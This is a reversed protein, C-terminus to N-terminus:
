GKGSLFFVSVRAGSGPGEKEFRVCVFWALALEIATLSVRGLGCLYMRERQERYGGPPRPGEPDGASDMPLARLGAGCSGPGLGCGRVRGQVLQFAPPSQEDPDLCGPNGVPLAGPLEM